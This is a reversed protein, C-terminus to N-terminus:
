HWTFLQQENPTWSDFLGEVESEELNPVKGIICEDKMLSKLILVLKDQTV